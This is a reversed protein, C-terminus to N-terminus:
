LAQRLTFKGTFTQGGIRVIPEIDTASGYLLRGGGYEGPAVVPDAFVDAASYQGGGEKRFYGGVVLDGASARFADKICAWGMEVGDPVPFYAHRADCDFPITVVDRTAIRAGYANFGLSTAEVTSNEQSDGWDAWPAGPIRCYNSLWFRGIDIIATQAITSAVATLTFSTASANNAYAFNRPGALAIRGMSPTTVNGVDWRNALGSVVRCGLLGCFRRLEAEPLSALGITISPASGTITVEMRCPEGLSETQMQSAPTLFDVTCDVPVVDIVGARAM